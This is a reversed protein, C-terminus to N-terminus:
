QRQKTLVHLSFESHFSTQYWATNGSSSWRHCVHARLNGEARHEFSDRSCVSVQCVVQLLQVWRYMLLLYWHQLQHVDAQSKRADTDSFFTRHVCFNTAFYKVGTDSLFRQQVRFKSPGGSLLRIWYFLLVYWHQLQYIHAQPNGRRGSCLLTEPACPYKVYWWFAFRDFRYTPCLMTTSQSSCMLDHFGRRGTSLVNGGVKSLVQWECDGNQALFNNRIKCFRYASRSFLRRWCLQSTLQFSSKQRTCCDTIWSM